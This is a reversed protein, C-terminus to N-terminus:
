FQPIGGMAPYSYRGSPVRINEMKIKLKNFEIENELEEIKADNM